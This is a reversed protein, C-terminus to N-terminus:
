DIQGKEKADSNEYIISISWIKNSQGFSIGYVMKMKMMECMFVKVM